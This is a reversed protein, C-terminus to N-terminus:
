ALLTGCIQEGQLFPTVTLAFSVSMITDDHKGSAAELKAGVRRYSLMEEILM